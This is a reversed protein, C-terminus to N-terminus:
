KQTPTVSPEQKILKEVQVFGEAMNDPATKRKSIIMPHIIMDAGRNRSDGSRKQLLIAFAIKAEENQCDSRQM